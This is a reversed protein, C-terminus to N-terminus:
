AVDLTLLFSTQELRIRETVPFSWTREPEAQNTVANGHVRQQIRQFNDAFQLLYLYSDNAGSQILAGSEWRAISAEGIKSVEAMQSRSLGYKARVAKVAAPNLVGLFECVASHRADEADSETFQFGCDSCTHVQVQAQLTLLEGAHLYEFEDPETTTATNEAGCNACPVNNKPGFQLHTVETM